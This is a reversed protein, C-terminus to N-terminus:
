ELTPLELKESILDSLENIGFIIMDVVGKVSILFEDIGNRYQLAIDWENFDIENFCFNAIGTHSVFDRLSQHANKETVLLSFWGNENLHKKPNYPLQSSLYKKLWTPCDSKKRLQNISQIATTKNIVSYINSSLIDLLSRSIMLFSELKLALYNNYITLIAPNDLNYTSLIFDCISKTESGAIQVLTWKNIIAKSKAKFIQEKKKPLDNRSLDLFIKFPMDNLWDEFVFSYNLSLKHKLVENM